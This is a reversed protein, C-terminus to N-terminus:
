GRAPIVYYLIAFYHATSGALVFVHWIAHHHPLRRWAYFGVGITYALGGILLLILGMPAVTAFLPKIAVLVAWGMLNYLVVALIRRRQLKMGFGIGLVAIAWTVGFLSWGWPGRLNVLVFPTYTGAILLFIASHDLVRLKHKSPLHRFGHYLTSATYLLILTAAFISCSVVHWSEGYKVASVILVASGVIALVTSIASIVTNALEESKSYNPLPHPLLM